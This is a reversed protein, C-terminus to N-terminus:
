VNKGFVQSDRGSALLQEHRAMPIDNFVLPQYNLKNQFFNAARNTLAFVSSCKALRAQQEAYTVLEAGYGLGEHSQKVYLCAIEAMKEDPYHHLAVSGVVNDDIDMVYYDSLRQEIDAYGRPVLHANRLSRGIMGLLEVIDEERLPRIQRYSDTYVMAGVGENSFLEALLVGPQSGDLIHVRDIGMHCAKAAQVIMSDSGDNVEAARIAGEPVNRQKGCLLILKSARIEHAFSAIETSLSAQKYIDAVVAQGRELAAVSETVGREIDIPKQFFKMEVEAARDLLDDASHVTSALILKVGINQLSVLDLMAEALASVPSDIIVVFTKGHFQPVYQLFGRVDGWPTM